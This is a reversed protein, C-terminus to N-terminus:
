AKQRSHNAKPSVGADTMRDAIKNMVFPDVRLIEAMRVLDPL